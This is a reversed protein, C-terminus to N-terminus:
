PASRDGGGPPTVTISVDAALAAIFRRAADPEDPGLYLRAADAVSQSLTPDVPIVRDAERLIVWAHPYFAPDRDGDLYVLGVAVEGGIRAALARSLAECDGDPLDRRVELIAAALRDRTARPIEDPLPASLRVTAADHAQLPTLDPVILPTSVSLRRATRPSRIPAVPVAYLRGPDAIPPSGVDAPVATWPGDPLRGDELHDRVRGAIKWRFWRRVWDGDPTPWREEIGLTRGRVMLRYRAAPGSPVPADASWPSEPGIVALAAAVTGVRM